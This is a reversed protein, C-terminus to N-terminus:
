AEFALCVVAERAQHPEFSYGWAKLRMLIDVLCASLAVWIMTKLMLTVWILMETLVSRSRGGGSEAAVRESVHVFNEPLEGLDRPTDASIYRHGRHRASGFDFLTPTMQVVHHAAM